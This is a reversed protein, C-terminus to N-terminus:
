QFTIAKTGVKTKCTAVCRGCTLCKSRNMVISKSRDDITHIGEEPVFPKSARAKTKIVLKLFECSDKRNCKGCKFDHKDLLKSITETRENLVKESNTLIRMGDKPKLCCARSLKEQGMVEVLCVGCQGINNCDELFCLAPIDINNERAIQLINKNESVKLEMDNIFITMM